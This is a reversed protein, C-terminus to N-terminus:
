GRRGLMALAAVKAAKETPATGSNNGVVIYGASVRWRWVRKSQRSISAICKGDEILQLRGDRHRTWHRGPSPPRPVYNDRNLGIVYLGSSAQLLRLLNIDM